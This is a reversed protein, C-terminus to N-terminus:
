CVSAADQVTQAVTLAVLGANTPALFEDIDAGESTQLMSRDGDPNTRLTYNATTLSLDSVEMDLKSGDSREIGVSTGTDTPALTVTIPRGNRDTSEFPATGCAELAADITGDADRILVGAYARDAKNAVSEAAGIGTWTVLAAGLFVATKRVIGIEPTRNLSNGYNAGSEPTHSNRAM